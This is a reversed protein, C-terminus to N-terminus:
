LAVVVKFLPCLQMIILDKMKEGGLSHNPLRISAVFNVKTALPLEQGNKVTGVLMSKLGCSCLVVTEDLYCHNKAAVRSLLGNNTLRRQVSRLLLAGHLDSELRVEPLLTFVNKEAAASCHVAMLQHQNEHADM